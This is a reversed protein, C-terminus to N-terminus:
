STKSFGRKTFVSAGTKQINIAANLDRDLVLDCTTCDFVRQKLSLKQRNGCGSCLQSTPSFRELKIVVKGQKFAIWQIIELFQHFGLDSVKRGWLRKMGDLNLDEFVLVDYCKCLEHALKFHFDRRKDAIRLHTRALFWQSKKRNNSGQVKRSIARHLHRLRDLSLKLYQPAKYKQGTHETLFTRLGFDFGGIKSTSIELVPVQMEEIVSLCLWLYGCSDRKITITQILGKLERHKIFKYITKGIKIQGIGREKREDCAHKLDPLLDWGATAKLTFSKYSKVKKFRPLGGKKAFFREYARELRELVDQVAQSGLLKWHAYKQSKMRLYSIHKKLQKISLHKGFRRYYRRHLALSHNWILAAINILRQLKKEKKSCHYFRYKFTRRIRITQTFM